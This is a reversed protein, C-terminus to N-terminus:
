NKPLRYRCWYMGDFNTMQLYHLDMWKSKEACFGQIQLSHINQRVDRDLMIYQPQISRFWNRLANLM